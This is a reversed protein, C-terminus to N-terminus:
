LEGTLRLLEGAGPKLNSDDGLTTVFLAGDPGFAMATPRSVDAVKVATAAPAGPETADDVRFIGGAGDSGGLGAAYLNHSTPHYALAVIRPLKIDMELVHRGDIPNVYHLRSTAENQSGSGSATAIYGDDGVAVGGVAGIKNKPNAPRFETPEGLTNARVPVKWLGAAGRDTSAAMVLIDAVRDNPKTRALDHLCLRSGSQEGKDGENALELDQKFADAKLANGSEALDYLRMLPRGDEDSGAAVLRSRDLFYLSQVGPACPSAENSGAVVPFGTVVEIANGSKGVEALVVRGAGREAVFVEYAGVGVDPRVAVGCPTKLDSLITEVKV